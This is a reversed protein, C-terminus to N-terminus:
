GPLVTVGDNSLGSQHITNKTDGIAGIIYSLVGKSAVSCLSPAVQLGFHFEDGNDDFFYKYDGYKDEVVCEGDSYPPLHDGSNLEWSVFHLEKDATRLADLQEQPVFGVESFTKHLKHQELRTSEGPWQKCLCDQDSLDAGKIVHLLNDSWSCGAYTNLSRAGFINDYDGM